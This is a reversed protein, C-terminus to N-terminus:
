QPTETKADSGLQQPTVEDDANPKRLTGPTSSHLRTFAELAKAQEQKNGTARDAQALRYWAVEDGPRSRTARELLPIAEAPKQIELYVGGLGVLAEEFDPYRQLVAQFQTIADDRNGDAAHLNALEYGANGSEPDHALEASFERIAADRDEPKQSDRFRTLYIRGLKYHIGPRNPDITLVHNFAIIAADYDKQSENAEGQAQLMWVSNPAKDHLKLMTIYAFNGYIRGTHYLVESDDPYLKNLMLATEVADSDRDLGTYARLLQLGCMRRVDPDVTQRFGNVLGPLAESFRGLEALSVGLLSDLKPLGPKLKQATRVERVALEFEHQKFYIAALTAHVEAVAPELKALQEFDKRAEGFQGAAIARQGAEAYRETENEGAKQAPSTFPMLYSFVLICSLRFRTSIM